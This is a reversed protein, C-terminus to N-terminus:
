WRRKELIDLKKGMEIMNKWITANLRGNQDDSYFVWFKIQWNEDKFLNELRSRIERVDEIETTIEFSSAMDGNEVAEFHQKLFEELEHYDRTEANHLDFSLYYRAM